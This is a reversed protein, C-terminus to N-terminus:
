NESVEIKTVIATLNFPFPEDQLFKISVEDSWGGDIDLRIEGTFPIYDTGISSDPWDKFDIPYMTVDGQQDVLGYQGFMSRYFCPVIEYIKKKHGVTFGDAIPLEVPFTLLTSTFGLGVLARTVNPDVSIEGGSVVAEQVSNGDHFIQVTKGELHTLGTITDTETSNYELGCDVFWADNPDTGWDQEKLKEVYRVSNSDITRNIVFWVEDETLGPIVAVSEFDGDTVHEAWAVVGQERNYTLSVANGDGKIFWLIQDPRSQAAVEVLCPESIHEAFISLEPSIFGDTQLDYVMDRVKRNNRDIFVISDGTLVAQINTSGSQSQRESGISAATLTSDNSQSFIRIVSGSTGAVIGSKDQLWLIPNQKSAAVDYVIAGDDLSSIRMKEYDSGAVSTWLTGPLYSTGALILRNQYLCIARPWGRRDSWAGEAWKTTASTGALESRVYATVICPDTYATIVVYGAVDSNYAVITYKCSGSVYGSMTVRYIFGPTDEDFSYEINAADGNLKPYVPFWTVGADDSKELTVKGTWSGELTLLGEGEVAVTDSSENVDLTGSTDSNDSKQTILWLGGINNVDFTDASATLTISGNVDNPTVTTTTINDELFPGWTWNVDAITWEAHSFRSLKQPPHDPHVLYMVDNIQVHQIGRLDNGDTYPTTIYYANNPDITDLIEGSGGLALSCLVSFLICYIIKKM